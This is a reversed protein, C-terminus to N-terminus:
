LWFETEFKVGKRGWLSNAVALQVKPDLSKFEALLNKNARNIQDLSMGSLELTQLMARETESEAGNLTMSLAMAVSSPSIFINEESEQKFLESFLKFAFATNADVLKGDPNKQVPELCSGSCPYLSIMAELLFGVSVILAIRRKM